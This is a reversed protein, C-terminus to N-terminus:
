EIVLVRHVEVRPVKVTVMGNGYTWAIKLDSPVVEVAKPRQGRRVQVVVNEIPPLNEVIVRKPSLTEGSGRNILNVLLKGEKQRLIMELQPPGGVRASWQIGLGDVLGAIFERLEPGHGLYYNRFLPGHVAVIAGKGVRRKTVLAQKTLDKGPEQQSLRYALIETGPGAVVPQWAFSVPAARGGVPLYVRETLAEGQPAAGVLAGDDRALREGSVLVEGGLRAYGELAELVGKNMGAEEPVVILKYSGLRKLAADEPLVDASHHTELLAELAGQVPEVAHAFNFLPQNNAYYPEVLHLVAAEPVSKSHFCVEKRARCFEGAQAMNENHWGTLWGSRQPNEYIMVAGGLAVVESLEQELHLAPKFVWPESGEGRAFGWAMLDWSMDRADMMRGEIAAVDAGWAPSFDGSLYDVPAKVAEPQRLTYM